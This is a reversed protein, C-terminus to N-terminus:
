YQTQVGQLHTPLTHLGYNINLSIIVYSLPTDLQKGEVKGEEEGAIITM